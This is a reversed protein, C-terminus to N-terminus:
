EAERKPLTLILVGHKLEATIKTTDVFVPLNIALVCDKETENIECMPVKVSPPLDRRSIPSFTRFMEFPMVSTPANLSIKSRM